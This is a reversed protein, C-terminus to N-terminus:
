SKSFKSKKRRTNVMSSNASNSRKNSRKVFESLDRIRDSTRSKVITPIEAAASLEEKSVSKTIRDSGRSFKGVSFTRKLSKSSITRGFRSSKSSQPEPVEVSVIPNISATNARSRPCRYSTPLLESTNRKIQITKRVEDEALNNAAAYDVFFQELEKSTESPLDEIKVDGHELRLM